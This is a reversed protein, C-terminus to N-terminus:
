VSEAEFMVLPCASLVGVLGCGADALGDSCAYVSADAFVGFAAEDAVLAAPCVMVEGHVCEQRVTQGGGLVSLGVLKGARCLEGGGAHALADAAAGGFGLRECAEGSDAVWLGGGVGAVLVCEPGDAAGLARPM